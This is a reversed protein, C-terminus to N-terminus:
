GLLDFGFLFAQADEVSGPWRASMSFRNIASKPRCGCLTRQSVAHSRVALFATFSFFAAPLPLLCRPIRGALSPSYCAPAEEPFGRQKRGAAAPMLLPLDEAAAVPGAPGLIFNGFWVSCPPCSAPKPRDVGLALLPYYILLIPMFCLFFNTLFDANRRWIAMPAGILM